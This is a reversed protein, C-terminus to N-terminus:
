EVEIVFENVGSAKVEIPKSYVIPEVEQEQQEIQNGLAPMIVAQYTGPLAGSIRHGEIMTELAFSGDDNIVSNITVPQGTTAQFEILGGSFPTGDTRLVTGKAEFTEPPEPAADSCGLQFVMAAFVIWCARGFGRRHFASSAAM